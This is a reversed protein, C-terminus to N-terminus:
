FARMFVMRIGTEMPSSASLSDMRSILAARM